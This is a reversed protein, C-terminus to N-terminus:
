TGPEVPQVHVQRTRFEQPSVGTEKRFVRSFYAPDEYGLEYGVQSVSLKSFALLRKAELVLRDRISQTATRDMFLRCYRNLRQTTLGMQDAYFDAGREARFNDEVLARYRFLSFEPTRDLDAPEVKRSFLHVLVLALLPRYVDRRRQGSDFEAAMEGLYFMLRQFDPPETQFVLNRASRLATREAESRNEERGGLYDSSFTVVHGCTDPTFTWGHVAGAPNFVVAGPLVEHEGADDVLRGVGETIMLIQFLYAHSHPELSWGLPQSRARIAEIHFFDFDNASDGEGYLHYRPITSSLDM